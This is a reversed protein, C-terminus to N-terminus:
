SPRSGPKHRMQQRDMVWGSDGGRGRKRAFRRPSGKSRGICDRGCPTMSVKSIIEHLEPVFARHATRVAVMKGGSESENEGTSGAGM